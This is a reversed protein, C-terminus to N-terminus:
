ILELSQLEHVPLRHVEDPVIHTAYFAFRMASDRHSKAKGEMAEVAQKASSAITPVAGASLFVTEARQAEELAAKFQVAQADSAAKFQKAQSDYWEARSAHHSARKACHFELEASTLQLVFRDIM